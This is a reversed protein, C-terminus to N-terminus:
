TDTLRTLLARTEGIVYHSGTVCVLGTPGAEGVATTVAEEVAGIARTPLGIAEAAAALKEAPISRPNSAQTTIVESPILLLEQLMSLHDKDDLIGLVFTVKDFAFAEALTAVLARFGAPNHAADLVVPASREAGLKLFEIRGPVKANAMGEVVVSEDLKRAPLFRTVAEIATAANIGQHEGHLPLFMGEFDGAGTSVSIYRGGYAVRNDTLSFDRGLRYLPAAVSDAEEQLVAALEPSQEATITMSGPKIIGAKERAIGKPDSGLLATHDLGINTIVSVPADAVNTADWRGGLGVELVAVDVSEAAWLFFLATLVEFYSLKEGLKREVLLLYPHLHQFMEGFVEEPVPEGALSIRETVSELHPSTFTGVTLGTASLLSSAIRATSSKGNTGTIHLVPISAEPHDLAECIAEIRHLSPKLGKMADIGLGNLHAAAEEFSM